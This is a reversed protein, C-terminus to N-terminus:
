KGFCCCKNPVGQTLCGYEPLYSFFFKCWGLQSRWSLALGWLLSSANTFAKEEVHKTGAAFSSRQNWCGHGPHPCLVASLFAPTSVSFSPACLSFSPACLSLSPACLALSPACLLVRPHGFAEQLIEHKIDGTECCDGAPGVPSGTWSRVSGWGDRRCTVVDEEESPSVQLFELYGGSLM